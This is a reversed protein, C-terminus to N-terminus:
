SPWRRAGDLLSDPDGGEGQAWLEDARAFAERATTLKGGVQLANAALLECFGHLRLLWAEPGPAERAVDAGLRALRLAEAANHAAAACSAECIEVALAWSREDGLLTRVIKGQSEAPLPRLDAWLDRAWSRDEARPVPRADLEHLELLFSGIAELVAGSVKGELRQANGSAPHAAPRGRRTAKEYALRSSRCVPVLGDLFSLDVDFAKALRARNRRNPSRLGREYESILDDDIGSKQSLVQRSWKLIARLLVIVLGFDRKDEAGRM